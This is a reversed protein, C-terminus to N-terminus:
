GLYEFTDVPISPTPSVVLDEGAVVVSYADVSAWRLKITRGDSCRGAIFDDSASVFTRAVKSPIKFDIADKDSLGTRAFLAASETRTLSRLDTMIEDELIGRWESPNPLDLREIQGIGVLRGTWRFEEFLAHAQRLTKLGERQSASTLLSEFAGVVLSGAAVWSPSGTFGVGSSIPGFQQQALVTLRRWEHVRDEPLLELATLRYSRGSVLFDIYTDDIDSM